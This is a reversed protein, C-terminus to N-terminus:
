LPSSGCQSVGKDLKFDQGKKNQVRLICDWTHKGMGAPVYQNHGAASRKLHSRNM